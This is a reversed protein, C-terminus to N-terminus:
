RDAVPAVVTHYGSALGLGTTQQLAEIQWDAWENASVMGPGGAPLGAVAVLVTVAHLHDALTGTGLLRQTESALELLARAMAIQQGTTTTGAVTQAPTATTTM